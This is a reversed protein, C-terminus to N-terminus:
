PARTAPKAQLIIEIMQAAELQKPKGRANNHKTSIHNGILSFHKSAM